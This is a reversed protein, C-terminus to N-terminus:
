NVKTFTYGSMILDKKGDNNVIQITEGAFFDFSYGPVIALKNSVPSLPLRLSFKNPYLVQGSIELIGFKNIKLEVEHLNQYESEDIQSIRYRGLADQWSAPIAKKEIKVGGLSRRGSAYREGVVIEGNVEEMFVDMVHIPIIGLLKAKLRLINNSYPKAVLTKDLKDFYVRLRQGKQEIKVIGEDTSYLGTLRKMEDDSLTVPKLKPSSINTPEGTKVKKLYDVVKGYIARHIVANSNSNSCIALTMNFEPIIYLMSYFPEHIGGKSIRTYQSFQNVDWMLGNNKGFNLPANLFQPTLADTSIAMSLYTGDNFHGKNLYMQGLNAIDKATAIVGDAGPYSYEYTPIPKGNQYSQTSTIREYSSGTMKLPSFVNDRVYEQFSQNSVKEVLVALLETGWDSYQNVIGPRSILYSAKSIELIRSLPKEEKTLFGKANLRPLGAFHALLHRVTFPQVGEFHQKMTFEPVYDTYPRDIDIKGEDYLKLISTSTLLKSISGIAYITNEDALVQNEKNAFGYGNSLVVENDILLAVSLGTVGFKERKKVIFNDLSAELDTYEQGFSISLSAYLLILLFLKRM